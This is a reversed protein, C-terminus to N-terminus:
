LFHYYEEARDDVRYTLLSVVKSQLQSLPESGFFNLARRGISRRVAFLPIGTGGSPCRISARPGGTLWPSAFDAQKIQQKSSDQKCLPASRPNRQESRTRPTTPSSWRPAPRTREAM